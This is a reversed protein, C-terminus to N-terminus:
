FVLIMMWGGRRYRGGLYQTSRPSTPSRRAVAELSSDLTRKEPDEGPKGCLLSPAHHFSPNAFDRFLFNLRLKPPDFSLLRQSGGFSVRCSIFPHVRWCCCLFLVPCLM